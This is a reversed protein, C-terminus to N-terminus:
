SQPVIYKKPTKAFHTTPLVSRTEVSNITDKNILRPKLELPLVNHKIEPLVNSKIIKSKVTSAPKIEVQSILKLGLLYFVSASFLFLRM